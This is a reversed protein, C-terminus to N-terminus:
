YFGELSALTMTDGLERWKKELLGSMESPSVSSRVAVKWGAEKLHRLAALADAGNNGTGIVAVARGRAVGTFRGLIEEAIKKGASNMLSEAAVGSAFLTEKTAYMERSTLFM